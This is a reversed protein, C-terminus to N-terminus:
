YFNVTEDVIFSVLILYNGDILADKFISTSAAVVPGDVEKAVLAHVMQASEGDDVEDRSRVLLEIEGYAFYRSHHKINAGNHVVSSSNGIVKLM